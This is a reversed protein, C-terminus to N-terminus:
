PNTRTVRRLSEQFRDIDNETIKGMNAVRFVKNKLSEQGAYIVFGEAKLGDHLMQYTVGEPLTVSTLTHSRYDLPLLLEFGLEELRSWLRAALRRYRASRGTSGEELALDLAVEFAMFSQVAPTFPPANDLYVASYYTQLDLYFSRSPIAGLAEFNAVTGCVFSLGPVSELCKNASGICWDICDLEVHLEEGGVSSIADVILSRGHEQVLEGVERVPNLMGTCTEHHVMAVHTIARDRQLFETLGALDLPRGWGSDLFDHRIEHVRAIEVLRQAYHGNGAVLIKGDAPVVSCLTAEAAATGSGTLVVSAHVSSGGCVQTVKESVRSMLATFESERHCLDPNALASRVRSDVVVPGPNMLVYPRYKM